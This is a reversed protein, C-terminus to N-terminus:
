TITCLCRFVEWARKLEAAWAPLGRRRRPSKVESPVHGASHRVHSKVTEESLYLRDGIERNALGEAVLQLVEIERTTPTHDLEAEPQPLQLVAASPARRAAVEEFRQSHQRYRTLIEDRQVADM